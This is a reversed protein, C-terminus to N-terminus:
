SKGNDSSNVGPKNKSRSLKLQGAIALTVIVGVEFGSLLTKYHELLTITISSFYASGFFLCFILGGLVIGAIGATAFARTVWKTPKSKSILPGIMMIGAVIVAIGFIFHNHMSIM